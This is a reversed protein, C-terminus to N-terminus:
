GAQQAGALFDMKGLPVGQARLLAYATTVHFLFNPLSFTTLFSKATFNMSGNPFKLEIARNEDGDVDERKVSQVFDLTKQLREKLEAWTKEVDPMSPPELGALRAAAGKAGDSVMQFQRSLPHMDPALRAELWSAVDAGTEKAHAEAKDMIAMLNRLMQSYLPISADYLSLAM